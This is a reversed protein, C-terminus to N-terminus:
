YSFYDLLLSSSLIIGIYNQNKFGKLLNNTDNLDINKVWYFLLVYSIFSGLLMFHNYKNIMSITFLLIFITYFLLLWKKYSKNELWMAMSKVGIQKDYKLDMFGYVIDFGTTWSICGIYLIIVSFNLSDKIAAFGILAGLNFVVGLFVQPFYTYRKMLPYILMLIFAVFGIIIATKTLLLLIALAIVGIILMAFLAEIITLEGSALPRDQTRKVHIDFKMDLIDNIICELSRAFISGIFFLPILILNKPQEIALFLGFVAPYFSLYYGIPKDMRMLKWILLPKSLITGNAM